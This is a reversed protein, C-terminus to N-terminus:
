CRVPRVSLGYCRPYCLLHDEDEISVLSWANGGFAYQRFRSHPGDLYFTRSWYYCILGARFITLDTRCGAAPLFISNGNSRSTILLGNVSERTTWRPITCREDTLEDLQVITPMRWDEGWNVFAADDELDLETKDDITGYESKSNYKTLIKSSDGFNELRCEEFRQSTKDDTNKCYKYMEWEYVDKPETEGWAFYSGYDEPKEAGVNCTAWLTGSPLGLDVWEHEKLVKKM